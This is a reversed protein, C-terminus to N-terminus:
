PEKTNVACELSTFFDMKSEFYMSKSTLNPKFIHSFNLFARAVM